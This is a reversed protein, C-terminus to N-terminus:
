QNTVIPAELKASILTLIKELGNKDDESFTNLQASDIDLVGIIDGQNDFLPLVIESKSNSDCTIHGPYQHVDAVIMTSKAIYTEGCVGKNPPIHTCAPTGQYPGIELIGNGTHLYFGVWYFDPFYHKLYAAVTSLIGISTSIPAIVANIQQFIEEYSRENPM